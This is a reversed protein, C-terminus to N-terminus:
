ELEIKIFNALDDDLDWYYDDETIWYQDVWGPVQGYRDPIFDGADAGCAPCVNPDIYMRNDEIWYAPCVSCKRVDGFAM